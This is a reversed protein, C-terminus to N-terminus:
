SRCTGPPNRAPCPMWRRWRWWCSTLRALVTLGDVVPMRIDLLVVDPRHQLFMQMAEPGDCGGVVDIDGAAGLIMAVGSRVLAEDDVIMVRLV